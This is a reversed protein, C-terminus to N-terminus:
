VANTLSEQYCMVMVPYPGAMQWEPLYEAVGGDVIQKWQRETAALWKGDFPGGIWYALFWGKM